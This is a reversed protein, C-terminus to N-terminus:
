RRRADLEERVIRARPPIWSRTMARVGLRLDAPLGDHM